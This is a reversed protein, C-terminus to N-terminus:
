GRRLWRQWITDKLELRSVILLTAVFFCQEIDTAAQLFRVQSYHNSEAGDRVAELLVLFLAELQKLLELTAAADTLIVRFQNSMEEGNEVQLLWELEEM